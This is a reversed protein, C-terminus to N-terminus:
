KEGCQQILKAVLGTWGTQHSAGLGAGNDGHFYEYFLILDRWHPDTQLIELDGYVPRQGSENELFIQIMRQSLETAVEWLNMMQGSGTPCEIKFDDGLYHHFKQLAEILLYNIPFWIPGRWNSNGGFLGSSSEAPEYNVCYSDGNVNFIYPHEAHFKSVSRIGYDSFFEKEDLMRELIRRLKGSYAIALLRRAGVGPTEMCAVNKKLNPRNHIFWEMRQKFGPLQELTEEEIVEVALLPILGVMSRVKLPIYSGNPSHLMDYYFGDTEDWLSEEKEGMQNMADAIYLFHEFFKSAIDEYSPNEIALELAIALMNLCYMGMWSTGDSQSLHGGTPLKMNRDFVGINDMGLFGGQFVNKGEIDKRNVWWTFNLLLKQFVRELFKKDARGYMKKEINYVRLAAWAHVPPNGDSFDWEYAPLQGNPHMYWERTLRQLQRKAFDPDIIALPIVHFALDWIAFWPYEWKDPMSIIDDSFFHIWDHNRIGQRPEPPPLEGPDGKLWEEVVYYYFQKNWLMGAFAQRQVNRRDETLSCSSAVRQYFEDAERKRTQFISEFQADFPAALDARDSLRSKVVKTEGAGVNLLYHAAVKTGIQNPNVADKKGEVIYNNIGDKVYPSSNNVGFLREKNTENETFLLEPEGESYLWRGLTAESAEVISLGQDNKLKKIRPKEDAQNWSWTNRFWLTPLLHLSKAEKGRNVVSIQILIDESDAKAYEVFIDFYRNEAFVGTDLLEFERDQYGRCKNEEVLQSYPFAQHPYKYLCKMYSHTPTNDLYFYYEKVDEGHNGEKGTLGFIREKLIPDEGNWLAIAFCLRQHNDSIGAIGDEGWRYARSRAHDHPFYQWAAGDPSYDERVTGWQRESLYPGWRRWYAQRDRDEELRKEEETM